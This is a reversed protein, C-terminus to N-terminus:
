VLEKMCKLLMVPSKLCVSVYSHLAKELVIEKKDCFFIHM